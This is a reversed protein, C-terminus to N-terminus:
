YGVMQDANMVMNGSAAYFKTDTVDLYSGTHSGTPELAAEVSLSVVGSRAAVRVISHCLEAYGGQVNLNLDLSTLKAQHVEAIGAVHLNILGRPAQMTTGVVTVEGAPAYGNLELRTVGYLLGKNVSINGELSELMTVEYSRLAATDAVLDTGATVQLSGYAVVSSRPAFVIPGTETRFFLSGTGSITGAVRISKGARLSGDMSLRVVAGEPVVISHETEVRGDLKVTLSADMDGADFVGNDNTDVFISPGAAAAPAFTPLVFALAAVMPLVVSRLVTSTM